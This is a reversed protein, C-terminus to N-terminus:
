EKGVLKLFEKEDITPIGLSRAKTLKSGPSEGVVVYNTKSSVSSSIKGGREEIMEAAEERTLTVLKGTLVFTLGSLLKEGPKEEKLTFPLGAEKLKRLLETNEPQRFFFVISEAVKPGVDEVQILDEYSARTLNDLSRFHAALTQATREGVFRIGLAYILRDLGRQKSKEIEDLLNQSSKPGMRELNVLDEQKLAYLDPINKVLKKELLQDLVAEGLGEIHMARRSAFHLLSERLKAPCSPNTCRSIAEGEPKFTESHCVPCRTPFAFKREKGTRREKMVSVVKPIVDGSREILVYDGVRIDKRRIEDENHLTSRSITIGSLKVPELIAVPTLAGTRGVQVIIDNIKTTAQRAPFKFSIAWRPFKATSGLVTRQETSNVKIVVGDVDYDLSDRKATWEEWYSIVEKLSSCLRAYPNTKFGLKKLMQLNEWQTELEKGEVFIYYLFLDLNRRAVQRPDLLRLSGAAANRPNAFLPEGQEERERNIKQFSAFPLYIEGRVEIERPDDIELPLSRITKVNPTVDDGRFGDGRTVAQTYKGRRYIASIGLGDIKLEVVYDIKQHPIIRRIREEFERLEEVTYCNDLSLMPTRHEVSVFGELPQEGVRQTPSEPTILQPFKSELEELEKILLDFEYDSIQPDNDIYYKKEHYKIKERLKKIRKKAEELSLIKM